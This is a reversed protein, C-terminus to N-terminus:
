HLLFFLFLTALIFFYINLHLFISFRALFFKDEYFISSFLLHLQSFPHATKDLLQGTKRKYLFAENKWKASDEL